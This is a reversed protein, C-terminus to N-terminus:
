TASNVIRVGNDYSDQLLNENGSTLKFIGERVGKGNFDELLIRM